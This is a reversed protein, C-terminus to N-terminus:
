AAEGTEVARLEIVFVAGGDDATEVRLIGGFDKIINYSISLGLGLGKGVGKTSFFPDFIRETLGSPVGDGHDRICLHVGTGVRQATVHIRRDQATEAADAANTLLNVLVQQLRVPGAVVLPLNDALAVELTVEASRLRLQAIESAAEVADAVSVQGLKQGPARAFSHLRRSISTMRDILSLIRDLNGRAEDLRGRAILVNANDAYTRAAGLPQNFEHSLAASMQGLAALKAAQVLDTQAQRLNQEVIRREIVEAGLQENVFALESTREKVRAELQNRAAQQLTIREQLRARYQLVAALAMMGLGLALMMMVAVLVAQRKAPAADLMVRITWDAEAM